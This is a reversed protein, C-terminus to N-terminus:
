PVLFELATGIWALVMLVFGITVFRAKRRVDGVRQMVTKSLDMVTAYLVSYPDAALRQAIISPTTVPAPSRWLWLAALGFAAALVAAITGALGYWGMPDSRDWLSLSLGAAGVLVLARTILLNQHTTNESLQRNLEAGLIQLQEMPLAPSPPKDFDLEARAM